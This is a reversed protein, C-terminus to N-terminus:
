KKFKHLKMIALIILIIIIPIIIWINESFYKLPSFNIKETLYVPMETLKKNQYYVQLTGIKDEVKNQTTIESIGIFKYQIDKKNYNNPLYSIINESPKVNYFDEKLYKTKIQYVTDTKKAIVKNGYNNIYYDYITKADELHHPSIKDYTAGTTVLMYNVGDAQALSALCLGAGTTTGTKGGKIYSVDIEHRKANRQLTSKFTLKGDTTQYKESTIIEKLDKNKLVEQFIVSIDYASSYNNEDDLGVPNSFHTNKLNLEKVKNNMLNIFDAESPALNHALAMAADAGSPLLLGALLDRYTVVEGNTFGATVLNKEALGELDEKKIIVRSDLNDVESVTVLATMLKTLSAVPIKKDKNKEYIIEGTDLNYLVAEKSSIQFNEEAEPHVLLLFFIISLFIIKKM